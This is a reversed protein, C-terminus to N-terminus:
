MINSLREHSGYTSIICSECINVSITVTSIRNSISVSVQNKPILKEGKLLMHFTVLEVIKIDKCTILKIHAKSEKILHIELLKM